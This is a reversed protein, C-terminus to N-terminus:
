PFPMLSTRGPKLYFREPRGHLDILFLATCERCFDGSVHKEHGDVFEVFQISMAQQFKDCRECMHDLFRSETRQKKLPHACEADAREHAPQDLVHKLPLCPADRVDEAWDFLHPMQLLLAATCKYCMQRDLSTADDELAYYSCLLKAEADCCHECKYDKLSRLNPLDDRVLADAQAM